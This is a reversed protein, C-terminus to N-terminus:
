SHTGPWRGLKEQGPSGSAENGNGEAMGSWLYPLLEESRCFFCM